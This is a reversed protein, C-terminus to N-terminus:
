HSEIRGQAAGIWRRMHELHDQERALARQFERSLEEHGLGRAMEVLAEWSEVEALEAVLMAELSELLSTRPDTIVQTVGGGIMGQLAASPTVATPDGGLAQIVHNLVVFHEFHENRFLELEDKGPGGRFSGYAEHKSLLAEYLRVGSREFAIRAGLKDVFMILADGAGEIELPPVSGVASADRAYEIRVAAINEAGDQSTPPFEEMGQLMSMTRAPHAEIGTRNNGVESVQRM